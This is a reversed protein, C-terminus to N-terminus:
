KGITITLGKWNLLRDGDLDNCVKGILKDTKKKGFNLMFKTPIIEEIHEIKFWGPVEAINYLIESKCNVTRHISNLKIVISRPVWCDGEDTSLLYAKKTGKKITNFKIYKVDCGKTIGYKDYDNFGNDNDCPDVENLNYYDGEFDDMIDDFNAM